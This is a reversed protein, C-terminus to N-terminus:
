KKDVPLELTFAAGRGTGESSVTLAGGMEKAALAGGHLGFGHGEKKTTFGHNFIRNLNEAPIGVGNDMVSIKITGGGNAVRLIIQKDEKGSDDCSQKANRILNVLIQLVKHKDTLVPPVDAFERLVKIDQRSLSGNNMKVADEVLDTAKLSEVVGTSKAYNQQRAVIEKIHAVNNVLAGAEHLIDKQEQALHVALDALYLPLQKGKRDNTFFQALDAEHEKMLAAVKTISVVKSNRMKDAILSSSVTVSNLVNGVNHLVSTAVEAMGALRSADVLQQHLRVQEAEARKREAIESTLEATRAVIKSEINANVTELAAQREALNLADRENQRIALILFFDTFLVWGAHEFWRWHSATLVGYISQPWFTGRLFHDLATIVTASVLVKWDRYFALFALSGFIHFHTEVRGGTQHILLGSFLMQAVAITHRTLVSGPHKWALYVPFSTIAGGLFIAAWVHLHIHSTTGIWTTPSIWLAAAIGCLWQFIMLRAFMRDTRRYLNDNASEFLTKARESLFMGNM